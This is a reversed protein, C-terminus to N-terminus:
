RLSKDTERVPIARNRFLGYSTNYGFLLELDLFRRSLRLGTM